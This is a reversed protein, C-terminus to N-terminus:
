ARAAEKQQRRERRKKSAFVTRAIVTAQELQDIWAGLTETDLRQLSELLNGAALVNAIPPTAISTEM